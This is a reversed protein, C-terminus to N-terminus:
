PAIPISFAEIVKLNFQVTLWQTDQYTYSDYPAKWNTITAEMVFPLRPYTGGDPDNGLCIHAGFTIFVANRWYLTQKIGLSLNTNQDRRQVCLVMNINTEVRQLGGTVLFNTLGGDAENIFFPAKASAVTSPLYPEALQVDLVNVPTGNPLSITSQLAAIRELIQQSQDLLSM